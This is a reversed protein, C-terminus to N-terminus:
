KVSAISQQVPRIVQAPSMEKPQHSPAYSKENEHDIHWGARRLQTSVESWNKGQFLHQEPTIGFCEDCDCTVFIQYQIM